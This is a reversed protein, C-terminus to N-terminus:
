LRKVSLVIMRSDVRPPVNNTTIENVLRVVTGVVTPHLFASSVNGVVKEATVAVAGALVTWTSQVIAEGDLLPWKIGYELASNVAAEYEFMDKAM